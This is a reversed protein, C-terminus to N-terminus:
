TGGNTVRLARRRVSTPPSDAVGLSHVGCYRPAAPRQLLTKAIRRIANQTVWPVLRLKLRRPSLEYETFRATGKGTPPTTTTNGSTAPISNSNHSGISQPM